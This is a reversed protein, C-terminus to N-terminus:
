GLKLRYAGGAETVLHRPRMPDPEIKNRLQRLHARLHPVALSKGRPGWVAEVLQDETVPARGRSLRTLLACETPTLHVERGEVFVAQRERDIRLRAPAAGPPATTRADRFGQRLWVRMRALLDGAGFPKMVYDNAGADLIEGRAKEQATELLVLIPAPTWDRLQLTLGVADTGPAVDLLVLHPQNGLLGGFTPARTGM